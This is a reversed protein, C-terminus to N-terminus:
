QQNRFQLPTIGTAKKFFRVFYTSTEFELKDAIELVSLETYRLLRKAEQLIRGSIVEKTSKGLKERVIKNLYNSTICLRDAYFEIGHQTAYYEDVLASFESLYRSAGAEAVEGGLDPLAAPKARSLLMLAEYLMARLIHQDKQGPEDIEAKMEKYLSLIRNFLKEDPLLFPSKRGASLFPFNGLFHRDNFFSLLFSKMFVLNLGQLSTQPELKWVEGPISCIVTGPAVSMERDNIAVTESGDTILTISYFTESFVLTKWLDPRMVDYDVVDVLLPSGYKHTYFKYVPIQKMAAFNSCEM